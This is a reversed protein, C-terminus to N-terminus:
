ALAGWLIYRASGTLTEGVQGARGSLNEENADKLASKLQERL